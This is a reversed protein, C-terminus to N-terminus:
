SGEDEPQPALPAGMLWAIVDVDPWGQCVYVASSTTDARWVYSRGRIAHDRDAEAADQWLRAIDDDHRAAWFGNTRDQVQRPADFQAAALAIHAGFGKADSGDTREYSDLAGELAAFVAQGQDQVPALIASGELAAVLPFRRGVKDRSTRVVGLFGQGEPTLDPGFWFRLGSANDFNQEWAGGWGAKLRPMVHAFWQELLETLPASLGTSVFDGFTPHKGYVGVSVQADSSKDLMDPAANM